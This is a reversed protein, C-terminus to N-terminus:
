KFYESTLVPNFNTSINQEAIILLPLWLPRFIWAPYYDGLGNLLPNEIAWSLYLSANYPSIGIRGGEISPLTLWQSQGNRESPITSLSM